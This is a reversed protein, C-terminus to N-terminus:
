LSKVVHTTKCADVRGCLQVAICLSMIYLDIPVFHIYPYLSVRPKLSKESLRANGAPLRRM